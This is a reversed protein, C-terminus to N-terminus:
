LLKNAYDWLLRIHGLNLTSLSAYMLSFQLYPKQGMFHELFIYISPGCYKSLNSHCFAIFALVLISQAQQFYLVKWSDGLFFCDLSIVWSRYLVNWVFDEASISLFSSQPFPVDLSTSLAPSYFVPSWERSASNPIKGLVM